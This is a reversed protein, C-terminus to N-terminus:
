EEESEKKHNNKFLSILDFCIRSRLAGNLRFQEYIKEMYRGDMRGDEFLNKIHVQPLYDSDILNMYEEETMQSLIWYCIDYINAAIIAYENAMYKKYALYPADKRTKMAEGFRKALEDADITIYKYLVEKLNSEFDIVFFSYMLLAISHVDEDNQDGFWFTDIDIGFKSSIVEIFMYCIKTFKDRIMNVDSSDLRYEPDVKIAKYRVWMPKLHDVLIGGPAIEDNALQECILKYTKQVDFYDLIDEIGLMAFDDTM